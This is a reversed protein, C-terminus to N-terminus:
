PKKKTVLYLPLRLVKGTSVGEWPRAYSMEIHILRPANGHTDYANKSVKFRWIEYGGAGMLKTHPAVYQQSAVTLWSPYRGVLFWRFGTTANSKLYVTVYPDGGQVSMLPKDPTSWIPTKTKNKDVGDKTSPAPKITQPKLATNKDNKQVIKVPHPAAYSSTISLLFLGFMTFVTLVRLKKNYDVKYLGIEKFM